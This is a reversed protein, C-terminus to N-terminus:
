PEPKCEKAGSPLREVPAKRVGGSALRTFRLVVERPLRCRLHKRISGVDYDEPAFLLGVVTGSHARMVGRAGMEKGLKEALPLLPNFLISQHLRASM